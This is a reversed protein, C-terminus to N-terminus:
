PFTAPPSLKYLFSPIAITYNMTSVSVCGPPAPFLKGIDVASDGEDGEDGAVEVVLFKDISYITM